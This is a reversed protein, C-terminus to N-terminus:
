CIQGPLTVHMSMVEAGLSLGGPWEDLFQRHQFDAVEHHGYQPADSLMREKM